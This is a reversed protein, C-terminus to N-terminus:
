FPLYYTADSKQCAMTDIFNLMASVAQLVFVSEAKSLIENDHAYSSNNRIKNYKDFLSIFCSLANISFESINSGSNEYHKKVAGALSQLPYKNGNTDQTSIGHKGCFERLYMVSFTHLRDLVLTPENKNIADNIDSTLVKLKKSNTEPIEITIGESLSPIVNIDGLVYGEPLLAKANNRIVKKDFETFISMGDMTTHIQVDLGESDWPCRMNRTQYPNGFNKLAIHCHSLKRLLDDNTKLMALLMVKFKGKEFIDRM